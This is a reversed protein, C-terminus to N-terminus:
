ENTTEKRKLGDVFKPISIGLCLIISIAVVLLMLGVNFNTYTPKMVLKNTVMIAIAVALLAGGVCIISLSGILGVKKASEKVKLEGKKKALIYRVIHNVVIALTGAIVFVMSWTWSWFGDEGMQYAGDRLPEMFLRTLGYWIIYGFGLDGLETHKRLAKGFVHALVFYGLLNVIAEIFFLPVFLQGTGALNAGTDSYHANNFIIEPLWGWGSESVAVGHVECNFFNGFRGVAQAILITPVIIDAALFINKGKNRWMYWAVGAVIGAPAGGLITIGGEWIALPAWWDGAAVRDAFTVDWQGIVYAIRAGIIGAPFAVFFTSELIGHKGYEKYMYHDCLFYVLIAGGLICLAYFAINPQLKVRDGDANIEYSFPNVLGHTFSIGNILPYSLYPALGNTYIFFFFVSSTFGIIISRFLWKDLKEPINRGYYHIIFVNIAIYFSGIFLIGGVILQFVHAFDLAQGNRLVFFLSAVIFSVIAGGVFYSSKVFFKKFNTEIMPTRVLSISRYISVGALALSIVLFVISLILFAM